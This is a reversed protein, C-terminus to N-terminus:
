GNSPDGQQIEQNPEYSAIRRGEQNQYKKLQELKFAVCSLGDFPLDTRHPPLPVDDDRQIKRIEEESFYYRIRKNNNNDEHHDVTSLSGTSCSSSTMNFLLEVYVSMNPDVQEACCCTPDVDCKEWTELVTGIQGRLNMRNQNPRTTTTTTSTTTTMYVDQIVEVQDGVSFWSTMSKDRMYLGISSSQAAQSSTRRVSPTWHRYWLRANFTTSSRSGIVGYRKRISRSYQSTPRHHSSTPYNWSLSSLTFAYYYSCALLLYVSLSLVPRVLFVRLRSTRIMM